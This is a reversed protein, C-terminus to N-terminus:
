MSSSSKEEEDIVNDALVTRILSRANSIIPDAACKKTSDVWENLATFEAPVIRGDLSIGLAIGYLDTMLRSRNTACYSSKMQHAYVFRRPPLMEQGFQDVLHWFIQRCARTDFLANHHEPLDVGFYSSLVPLTASELHPLLLKSASLTCIHQFVPLEYDYSSLTKGLVNLDFSANHAVVTSGSFVSGLESDWLESFIPSNQVDSGKIGHIRTNRVDFNQEPNVLYHREFEVRGSDDTRSVAISCLRDNYRNPTEVDIFVFGKSM